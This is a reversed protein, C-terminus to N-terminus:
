GVRCSGGFRRRWRRRDRVSAEEFRMALFAANADGSIGQHRIVEVEDGSAIARIGDGEKHHIDVALVGGVAVGGLFKATMEPLAAEKGANKVVVLPGGGGSHALGAM